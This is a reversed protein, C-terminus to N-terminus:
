HVMDPGASLVGFDRGGSEGLEIVDCQVRAEIRKEAGNTVSTVVARAVGIIPIWGNPNACDDRDYVPILVRMEGNADKKANYLQQLENMASAVVGGNFIFRTNEVDIEPSEYTGTRLGSLINKLDSASAPDINFTHWGACSDATGTPYFTIRNGTSCPSAHTAYWAKAIAVPFDATGKPVYRIGSMRSAAQAELGVSAHGFVGPFFM